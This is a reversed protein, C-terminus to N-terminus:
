RVLWSFIATQTVHQYCIFIMICSHTTALKSLYPILNERVLPPFHQPPSPLVAALITIIITMTPLIKYFFIMGCNCENLGISKNQQIQPNDFCRWHILMATQQIHLM